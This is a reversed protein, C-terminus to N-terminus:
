EKGYRGARLRVLQIEYKPLDDKGPEDNFTSRFSLDFFKGWEVHRPKANCRFENVWALYKALCSPCEANAVLMGKYTEYHAGAEKETIDRPEEVLVVDDNCFYCDTRCLNRSM